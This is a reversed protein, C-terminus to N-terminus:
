GAYILEKKVLDISFGFRIAQGILRLNNIENEKFNIFALPISISLPDGKIYLGSAFSFLKKKLLRELSSLRVTRKYLDLGEQSLWPYPSHEFIKLAEEISKLSILDRLFAESLAGQPIFKPGESYLEQINKLVLLINAFDVKLTLYDWVLQDNSDGQALSQYAKRFYTEGLSNQLLELPSDQSYGKILSSLEKELGDEGNVFLTDALTKLDESSVLRELFELDWKGAPILARIIENKDQRGLIGRIITKLNYIDWCELLTLMLKKPKGESFRLIKKFIRCLNLSLACSAAHRTPPSILTKQLDNAYSPLSSLFSIFEDETRQRLAELYDEEKLLFSKMARIRANIYGYDSPM